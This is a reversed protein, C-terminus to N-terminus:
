VGYKTGESETPEQITSRRKEVLGTGVRQGAVALLAGIMIDAWNTDMEQFWLYGAISAMGFALALIEVVTLGESDNWFGRM